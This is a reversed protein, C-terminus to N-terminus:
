LSLIEWAELKKMSKRRCLILNLRVFSLYRPAIDILLRTRLYLFTMFITQSSEETLDTQPRQPVVGSLIMVAIGELFSVFGSAGADVVQAKRLEELQDRTKELAGRAPELSKVFVDNFDKVLRGLRYMEGSWIDLITILTGDRPTEVAKRTGSSANVLAKGFQETTM